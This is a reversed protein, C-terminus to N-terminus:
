QGGNKPKFPDYFVTEAEEVLPDHENHGVVRGFMDEVVVHYNGFEDNAFYLKVVDGNQDVLKHGNKDYIYDFKGGNALEAFDEIHGCCTHVLQSKMHNVALVGLGVYCVLLLFILMIRWEVMTRHPWSRYKTLEMVLCIGLVCFSLFSILMIGLAVYSSIGPWSVSGFLRTWLLGYTVLAVLLSGICCIGLITVKRRHEMKEKLQNAM